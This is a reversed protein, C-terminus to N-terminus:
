SAEALKDNLEAALKRDLEEREVARRKEEARLEKKFIPDWDVIEAPIKPVTSRVKLGLKTLGEGLAEIMFAKLPVVPEPYRHANITLASEIARLTPTYHQNKTQFLKRLGEVKLIPFDRNLQVMANLRYLPSTEWSTTNYDREDEVAPKPQRDYGKEAMQAIAADYSLTALLKNVYEISANPFVSLVEDLPSRLESHM